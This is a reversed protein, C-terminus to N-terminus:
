FFIEVVDDELEPCVEAASRFLERLDDGLKVDTV